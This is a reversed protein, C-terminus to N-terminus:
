TLMANAPSQQNTQHSFLMPDDPSRTMPHDVKTDRNKINPLTM